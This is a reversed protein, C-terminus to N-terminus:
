ILFAILFAKAAMREQNTGSGNEIEFDLVGGQEM